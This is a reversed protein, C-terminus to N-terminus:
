TKGKGQLEGGKQTTFQAVHMRQACVSSKNHQTHWRDQVNLVFVCACRACVHVIKHNSLANAHAYTSTYTMYQTLLRGDNTAIYVCVCLGHGFTLSLACRM